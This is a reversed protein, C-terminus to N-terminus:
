KTMIIKEDLLWQLHSAMQLASIKEELNPFENYFVELLQVQNLGWYIDYGPVCLLGNLEGAPIPKGYNAICDLLSYRIVLDRREDIIYLAEDQEGIIGEELSVQICKEIEEKAYGDNELCVLVENKNAIGKLIIHEIEMPTLFSIEQLERRFKLPATRIQIFNKTLSKELMKRLDGYLSSYYGAGDLYEIFVAQPYKKLTTERTTDTQDVVKHSVSGSDGAYYQSQVFLKPGEKRSKYPIIFDYKRKKLKKDITTDGLLVGLEIDRVNFDYEPKLGWDKMYRRLIEEPLHGLQVTVSGRLQFAALSYLLDVGYSELCLRKYSSGLAYLQRIYGEDRLILHFYSKLLPALINPTKRLSSFRKVISEMDLVRPIRTYIVEGQKVLPFSDMGLNNRLFLPYQCKLNNDTKGTSLLLVKIVKTLAGAYDPEESHTLFYNTINGPSCSVMDRFNDTVSDLVGFGERLDAICAKFQLSDRVEGLSPTVWLEFESLQTALNPLYSKLKM